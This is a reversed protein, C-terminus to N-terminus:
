TIPRKHERATSIRTNQFLNAGKHEKRHKTPGMNTSLLAINSFLWLLGSNVM